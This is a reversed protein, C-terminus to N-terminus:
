LFSTLWEVSRHITNWSPVQDARRSGLRSHIDKNLLGTILLSASVSLVADHPLYVDTDIIYQRLWRAATHTLTLEIDGLSIYQSSYECLSPWLCRGTILEYTLVGFAWWDTYM